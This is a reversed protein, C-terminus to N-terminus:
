LLEEKINSKQDMLFIKYGNEKAHNILDEKIIAQIEYKRKMLDKPMALFCQQAEEKTEFAPIFPKNIDSNVDHTNKLVADSNNKVDDPNSPLTFGMLEESSTEPNQVVVYVWQKKINIDTNM